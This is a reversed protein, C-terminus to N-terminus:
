SCKYHEEALLSFKLLFYVSNTLYFVDLLSIRSVDLNLVFYSFWVMVEVVRVVDYSMNFLLILM